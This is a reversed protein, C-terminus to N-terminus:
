QAKNNRGILWNKIITKWMSWPAQKSLRYTIRLKIENKYEFKPPNETSSLTGRERLYKLFQTLSGYNLENIIKSTWFVNQLNKRHILEQKLM